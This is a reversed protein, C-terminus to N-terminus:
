KHIFKKQKLIKKKNKFIIKKNNIITKFRNMKNYNLILKRKIM